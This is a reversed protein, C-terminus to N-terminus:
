SAAFVNPYHDVYSFTAFTYRLISRHTWEPDSCLVQMVATCISRILGELNGEIEETLTDSCFFYRTIELFPNILILRASGQFQRDKLTFILSEVIREADCPDAMYELVFYARSSDDAARLSAYLCCTSM